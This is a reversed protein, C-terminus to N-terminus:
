GSKRLRQGEANRRLCWHIVDRCEKSVGAKFRLRHGRRISYEDKYPLKGNVLTFLMVGLSWVTAKHGNYLGKTFCEPPCYEVTGSYEHYPDEKLLNCCGFDILKVQLTDTQLLLNEGKVDRHLYGRDQRHCCALVAQKIIGRATDESFAGGAVT